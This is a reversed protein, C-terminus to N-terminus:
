ADDLYVNELQHYFTPHTKFNKVRKNAAKFISRWFPQPIVAADQLIKQVNEMKKTREAVDFTGEADSLASDFEASAFHTENWPVGSRYGLSLVMTGLPRHTWTTLGFPTKDWVEWYQNSPMKNINLRIGGPECQTKFAECVATEWPGNTDGVDITLDIGDPYGAEALLAKSKEPDRKLSPLQFYEPHIPAVHHDEAATGRGRYAIDLLAQRDMCAQVAQRVRIDDFPKQSIQMRLVGTQATIAEHIDVNPLREIIDLQTVGLQYIMDVQDSAIAGVAANLDEGHDIYVIEDLNFPGKWWDRVKKLVAKEGIRFEALEFAHTGIPNKSLDAEYDKGFGRHTIATPYNYFNEPMALAAAKLNFRVTYDDVKEVAGAIGQKTMVPNGNEDKKGTDVQEVMADFLGLNSSGTAPDLWRTVAAVVDDANFDDGNSWKVGKQLFFTWTKLDASPEWREALYPRTINDTGTVTLYEVLLRAINSKEVWPFTAPDTMDQVPMSMRLTGGPKGQAMAEPIFQQGTLVGSLGYAAPAAMGLLAATRVFERRDVLGSQHQEAIEPIYEHIDGGLARSARGIYRYKSRM